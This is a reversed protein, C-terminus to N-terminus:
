AKNHFKELTEHIQQIHDRDHRNVFNIFSILSTEGRVPHIYTRQWQEETLGELLVLLDLRTKTFERFLSSFEELTFTLEKQPEHNLGSSIPNIESLTKNVLPLIWTKDLQHLHTVIEALSWENEKPHFNITELNAESVLTDLVAPTAKIWALAGEPQVPITTDNTQSVHDLWDLLTEMSGTTSLPHMRGPLTTQFGDILFGPLGVLTSPFIDEELSNGVMVAPSKPFGSRAVVEAFYAPNPKAFHFDNYTSIVSFPYKEPSLGAWELRQYIATRPFLPNTAIGVNYGRKLTTEVIRIASPIPSTKARLDPLIEEYFNDILPRLEEKPFGVAPYFYQDFTDELTGNPSNKDIMKQTAKLLEHIMKEPNIKSALHKGLAKLYAPQFGATSNNLLTDDLDFLVTLSM